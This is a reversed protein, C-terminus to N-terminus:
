RFAVHSMIENAEFKSCLDVLGTGSLFAAVISDSHPGARNVRQRNEPTLIVGSFKFPQVEKTLSHNCNYVCEFLIDALTETQGM